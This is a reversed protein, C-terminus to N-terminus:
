PHALQGDKLKADRELRGSTTGITHSEPVWFVNTWGSLLLALFYRGKMDPISRIWPEGGVTPVPRAPARRPDGVAKLAVPEIEL